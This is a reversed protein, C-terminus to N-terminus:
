KLDGIKEVLEDVTFENLNLNIGKQKLKESIQLIVPLGIDLEKLVEINNLIEKKYFDKQIQKNKIVIVRDALLIEDIVNTIYIITYGLQKLNKLIEYISKKGEPDLMTTPEDLVIIKTNLALVSAITIRQKQGLSLEFTGKKIYDQMGVKELAEQITNETDSSNVSLNRMGFEIDDYVKNFLIQNEPNQFVVGVNKRLEITEKKSKTNIKNVIVDGKTPKELGSILKVLTSKGSGNKGIIAVFEGDNITINIDKLVENGSKYKYSVNNIEVM